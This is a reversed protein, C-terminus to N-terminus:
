YRSTLAQRITRITLSAPRIYTAVIILSTVHWDSLQVPRWTSRLGPELCRRAASGHSGLKVKAASRGLGRSSILRQARQKPALRALAPSNSMLSLPYHASSRARACSAGFCLAEPGFGRPGEDSVWCQLGLCLLTCTQWFHSGPTPVSVGPVMDGHTLVILM